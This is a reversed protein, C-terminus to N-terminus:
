RVKKQLCFSAENNVACQQEIWRLAVAAMQARTISQNPGFTTATTGEFLRNARVYEIADSAGHTVTDSFTASAKPVTDNTLHRAFMTAIQARTVAANLRFTGDPYGKIYPATVPEEVPPLSILSFTSFKNVEFQYALREDLSSEIEGRVIENTGDSHEIFVALQALQESTLGVFMPITVLVPHNQLNTEIKIPQGLLEILQNGIIQQLKTRQEATAQIPTFSFQLDDEFTALVETAAYVTAGNAVIELNVGQQKLRNLAKAAISTNMQNAQEGDILVVLRLTDEGSENLKAIAEATSEESVFVEDTLIGDIIRRNVTIEVLNKGNVSEMKVVIRETQVPLTPVPNTSPPVPIIPNTGSNNVLWRAYLTIDETVVDTASNWLRLFNAEKYWGAFTYGQRTPQPLTLGKNYEINQAAVATGGNAEFTVKYQNILWQAYLKVNEVGMQFEANPLYTTGLGNAATNWGTFTHGAKSLSGSNEAVNVPTNQLYASSDVPVTGSTHGNGDYTVTYTPPLVTYVPSANGIEGDLVLVTDGKAQVTFTYNGISQMATTFDSQENNAAVNVISGVAVGEKYLQVDYSIAYPVAQWKAIKGDWISSTTTALKIINQINSPQSILADLYSIGDGKALVTVTYAGEEETQMMQLFDYTAINAAVSMSHGVASNDKYLQVDYSTENEVDTWTAIGLSSLQVNQVQEIPPIARTVTIVYEKITSDDEATVIIQLTNSGIMLPLNFAQGSTVATGNMMLKSASGALSATVNINSVHHAVDVAYNLTNPDFSPSLSGSSLTLASLNADTSPPLTTFRWAASDAIGAIGQNASDIFAGGDILVYYTMAKLLNNSLSITVADANVAVNQSTAEITEMKQDNQNYIHIYKGSVAQINESFTLTLTPNIAINIAHNIPTTATITPVPDEFVDNITILFAKEFFAGGSDTSRVRISYSNKTEYDFVSATRLENGSITFNSNDTDGLGSVFTYTFSDGGDPDATTLSGVATGIPQNEDIITSSLNIDTPAENVNTM